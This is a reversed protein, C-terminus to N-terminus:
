PPLLNPTSSFHPPLSLTFLLLLNTGVEISPLFSLPRRTRHKGPLPSTRPPLTTAPTDRPSTVVFTRRSPGTWQLLYSFNWLLYPGHRSHRCERLTSVVRIDVGHHLLDEHQQLVLRKRFNHTSSYCSKRRGPSVSLDSYFTPRPVSLHSTPSHQSRYSTQAPTSPHPSNRALIYLCVLRYLHVQYPTVLVNTLGVISTDTKM